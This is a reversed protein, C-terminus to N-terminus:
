KKKGTMEQGGQLLTVSEVEGNDNRNFTLQAEVVKLYFVNESKPFIDVMPQGTAQTKLQSGEKTVTLIFQPMLEYEGVYSELIEDPVIVEKTLGEVDVGMKKLMDNANENGPNLELSKKYNEIAEKRAGNALLAEGYSDYM